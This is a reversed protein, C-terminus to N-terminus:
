SSSQLSYHLCLTVSSPTVAAGSVGSSRESAVLGGGSGDSGSGTVLPHDPTVSTM